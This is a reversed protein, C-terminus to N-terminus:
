PIKTEIRLLSLAARADIRPQDCVGIKRHCSHLPTPTLTMPAARTTSGSVHSAQAESGVLPNEPAPARAPEASQFYKRSYPWHKHLAKSPQDGRYGRIIFSKCTLM